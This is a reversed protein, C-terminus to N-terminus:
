LGLTSSLPCQLSRSWLQEFRNRLNATDNPSGFILKGRPHAVHFRVVALGADTVVFCDSIHRLDDSSHRVENANPYRGLLTLLRPLRNELRTTDHLVIRLRAGRSSSLFRSLVMVRPVEELHLRTLDHDFICIQRQATKIVTDIANGFAAESDFYVVSGDNM